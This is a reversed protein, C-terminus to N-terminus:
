PPTNGIEEYGSDREIVLNQDSGGRPPNAFGRRAQSGSEGALPLTVYITALLCGSLEVVEERPLNFYFGTWSSM